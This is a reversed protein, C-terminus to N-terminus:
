TVKVIIRLYYDFGISRVLNGSANEGLVVIVTHQMRHGKVEFLVAARFAIIFDVNLFEPCDDTSELFAPEV